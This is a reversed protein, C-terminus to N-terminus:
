QLTTLQHRTIRATRLQRLLTMLNPVTLPYALTVVDYGGITNYTIQTITLVHGREGGTELQLCRKVTGPAPRDVGCTYSDPM